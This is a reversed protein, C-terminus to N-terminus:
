CDKCFFNIPKKTRTLDRMAHVVNIRVINDFKMHCVRWHWLWSDNIQSMFCHSNAGKLQYIKGETSKRTVIVTKSGKRIECKENKFVLDYGKHCM